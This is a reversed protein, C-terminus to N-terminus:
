SKKQIVSQTLDEHNFLIDEVFLVLRIVNEMKIIAFSASFSNNIEKTIFSLPITLFARITKLLDPRGSTWIDIIIDEVIRYANRDVEFLNWIIIAIFELIDKDGKESIIGVQRILVLKQM